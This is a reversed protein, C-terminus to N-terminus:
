AFILFDVFTAIPDPLVATIPETFTSYSGVVAFSDPDSTACLAASKTGDSKQLAGEMRENDQIDETITM